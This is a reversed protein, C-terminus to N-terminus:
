GEEVLNDVRNALDNVKKKLENLQKAGSMVAVAGVLVLLGMRYKRRNMRDITSLLEKSPALHIVVDNM